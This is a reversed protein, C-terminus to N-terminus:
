AAELAAKMELLEAWTKGVIAADLLKRFRAASALEEAALEGSEIRACTRVFSELFSLRELQAWETSTKRRQEIRGIASDTWLDKGTTVVSVAAGGERPLRAVLNPPIATARFAFLSRRVSRIAM